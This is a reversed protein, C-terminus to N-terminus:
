GMSGCAAIRLARDEKLLAIMDGGADLKEDAGADFRDLIGPLEGEISQKLALPLRPLLAGIGSM